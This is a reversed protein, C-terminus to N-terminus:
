NAYKMQKILHLHLPMGLFEIWRSTTCYLQNKPGIVTVSEGYSRIKCISPINQLGFVTINHSKLKPGFVHSAMWDSGGQGYLTGVFANKEVYPAIKKMLDIHIHAPGCIIFVQTGRSVIEGDSSVINVTGPSIAISHPLKKGKIEGKHEWASNKTYATIQNKWLNPRRTM